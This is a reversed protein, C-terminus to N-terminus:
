VYPTPSDQVLDVSFVGPNANTAFVELSRLLDKSFGQGTSGSLRLKGVPPDLLILSPFQEAWHSFM